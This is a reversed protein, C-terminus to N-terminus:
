ARNGRGNRISRHAYEAREHSILWRWILLNSRSRSPSVYAVKTFAQSEQAIPLKQTPRRLPCSWGITGSLVTEARTCYDRRVTGCAYPPCCNRNKKVDTRAHRTERPATAPGTARVAPREGDSIILLACYNKPHGCSFGVRIRVLRPQPIHRGPFSRFPARSQCYDRPHLNRRGGRASGNM